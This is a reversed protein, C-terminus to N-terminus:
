GAVVHDHILLAEAAKKFLPATIISSYAAKKSEKVSVTIVRKYSGKEVYGIFTNLHKDENYKGNELINATGTKGAIKYGNIKARKGSGEQICAQLITDIDERTKQSIPTLKKESSINNIILTPTVLYGGNYVVSLARALQLLTTTIEYGFSLSIISFASWKKPPNVFGKQEGPFHLGTAQGFGLMHYYTYLKENIRKAIKVTGINNSNQIVEKFPIVSHPHTTRVRIGDIKTEKTNECNIMEDLTVVQLDLAALACFTKIVSGTEFAQTAPRNKTTEIDLKEINNPDFYPYSTMACIEGNDPNMIVIAGEKAQLEEVTNQLIETIKFQLDADITLTIPESPTGLIALEKEFYFHNNRADKKLLHTTETGRLLEDYEQELGMIGHNDIDTIGLVTSLCKYPYFRSPEQLIHIDPIKSSSIIEQQELTLKRAIFFFNKDWSQAFRTAAAPFHKELFEIVAPRDTVQKSLIFAAFSDKNLAIPTGNRDFICAREPLTTVSISYQKEGLNKFFNEQQVQMFYLSAIIIGYLTLLISFIFFSRLHELNDIQKM